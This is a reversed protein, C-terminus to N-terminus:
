RPTYAASVCGRGGARVLAPMSFRRLRAAPSLQRSSPWLVHFMGTQGLYPELVIQLRGAALADRVIFDPLYALGQNQSAACILAEINNCSM